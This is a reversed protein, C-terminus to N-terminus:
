LGSEIMYLTRSSTLSISTPSESSVTCSALRYVGALTSLRHDRTIGVDLHRPEMQNPTQGTPRALLLVVATTLLMLKVTTDRSCTTNRSPM